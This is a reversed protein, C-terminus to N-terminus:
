LRGTLNFHVTKAQQYMLLGSEGLERGFGSMKVGGFPARFDSANTSNIWVQGSQIKKAFNHAKGINQTFIAAGLGYNTDNALSLAEEDTTFKSVTVVPGFIEEKIITSDQAVDVFITPEVYSSLEPYDEPLKGGLVCKAGEKKGINIYNLVRRQQIKSVQPGIHIDRGFPDGPVYTDKVHQVLKDIFEQYILEQVYIRSTAICIQGMNYMIGFAAYKVLQVLDCDDMIVLPSKGGCEMTVAKLNSSALKQISQGVLTSGTFSVKDIDMHSAIAAGAEPGTGTVVNFVGPPFGAEVVLEAFKLLSLPTVEASKMVITNGAALLPAIKWAAMCIPYNWPIIQGCVGYPIFDYYVFKSNDTPVTNGHSKDAYGAYYRFTNVSYIVDYISNTYRPKGSDFTEIDAILEKNADLLDALKYLLKGKETGSLPGWTEEFAKRAAKVAVDVDKGNGSYVSCIKDGTSPDVTDLVGGDISRVFENAIFLGTPQNYTKGTPLTVPIELDLTMEIDVNM